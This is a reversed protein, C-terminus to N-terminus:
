GTVVVLAKGKYREPLTFGGKWQDKLIKYLQERAEDISKVRRGKPKTSNRCPRM